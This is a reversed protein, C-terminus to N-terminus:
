RISSSNKVEVIRRGQTRGQKIVGSHVSGTSSSVTMFNGLGAEDDTGVGPQQGDAAETEFLVGRRGRGRGKKRGGNGAGDVEIHEDTQLGISRSTVESVKSVALINGLFSQEDYDDWGPIGTRLKISPDCHAPQMKKKQQQHQHQQKMKTAQQKQQGEKVFNEMGAEVRLKYGHVEGLLFKFVARRQALSLENLRPPVLVENPWVRDDDWGELYGGNSKIIRAQQRTDSLCMSLFNQLERQCVVEIEYEAAADEANEAVAQLNERSAMLTQELEKIADMTSEEEITMFETGINLINSNNNDADYEEDEKLSELDDGLNKLRQTLSAIQKQFAVERTKMTTTIEGCIELEHKDKQIRENLAVTAKLVRGAKHGHRTLSDGHSNHDLRAQTKTQNLMEHAKGHLEVKANKLNELLKQKLEEKAKVAKREIEAMLKFHSKRESEIEALLRRMEVEIETKYNGDERLTYLKEDVETLRSKLTGMEEDYKAKDADMTAHYGELANKRDLAETLVQNELKSIIDYNDDLKKHLYFYVDNQDEKQSKLENRGQNVKEFADRREQRLKAVRFPLSAKEELLQEKKKEQSIAHALVDKMSKDTPIAPPGEDAKEKKGKKKPGM